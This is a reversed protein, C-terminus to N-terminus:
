VRWWNGASSLLTISGLNSAYIYSAGASGGEISQGTVPTITLNNSALDGGIDKIVVILGDMVATPLNVTIAGGASNVTLIATNYPPNGGLTDITYPSNSHTIPIPRGAIDIYNFISSLLSQNPVYFVFTNNASSSTNNVIVDNGGFVIKSKAQFAPPGSSLQSFYVASTINAANGFLNNNALVMNTDSTNIFTNDGYDSSDGGFYGYARIKSNTITFYDLSGGLGAFQFPVSFGDILCNNVRLYTGLVAGSPLSPSSVNVFSSTAKSVVTGSSFNVRGIGVVNDIVLNSGQQQTILAPATFSSDTFNEPIKYEVDGLVTPEVFNDAIVMNSIVTQRAFMFPNSGGSVAVDDAYGGTTRNTDSLINFVPRTCYVTGGSTYSGNGVSGNLSFQSSNIVTITWYPNSATNNAATNGGVDNIIVTQGTTLNTPSSVSIIIPSSNSAGSVIFPSLPTPASGAMAPLSLQSINVLKTGFGEGLLTIGPPVNITNLVMYTGAKIFLVGGHQLRAYATPLPTGNTIMTFLPNLFTDLTPITPDLNTTGNAAHWCDYGDPNSIFGTTAISLLSSLANLDELAQEVTTANGYVLSPNLVDIQDATHRFNTGTIHAQFDFRSTALQGGQGPVFPFNSNNVM